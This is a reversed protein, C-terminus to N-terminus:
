FGKAAKAGAVGGECLRKAHAALKPYLRILGSRANYRKPDWYDTPGAPPYRTERRHWMTVMVLPAVEPFAKGYINVVYSVTEPQSMMPAFKEEFTREFRDLPAWQSEAEDLLRLIAGNPPTAPDFELTVRWLDDPRLSRFREVEVKATAETRAKENMESQEPIGLPLGLRMLLEKGEELAESSALYGLNKRLQSLRGGHHALVAFMAGRGGEGTLDGGTLTLIGTLMGVSVVAKEVSQQLAFVAQPYLKKAHLLKSAALDKRSAEAFSLAVGVQRRDPIGLVSRRSPVEQDSM